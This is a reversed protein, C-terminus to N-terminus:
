FLAKARTFQLSYLDNYYILPACLEKIEIVKNECDNSALFGDQTGCRVTMFLFCEARWEHLSQVSSMM